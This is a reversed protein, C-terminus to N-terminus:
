SSGKKKDDRKRNKNPDVGEIYPIRGKKTFTNYVRAVQNYSSILGGATKVFSEVYRQGTDLEHKSFDRLKREWEFEKMAADIEAKSFENRHKYLMSPSKLYSKRKEEAKQAKRAEKKEKRSSLSKKISGKARQFPNKGSGYPYRGSRRPIGYHELFEEIIDEPEM